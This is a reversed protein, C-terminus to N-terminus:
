WGGSALWEDLDDLRDSGWFPEGDVIFTPAGFVGANLSAQVSERLLAAPEPGRLAALLGEPDIGDPLTVHQVLTEPDSLLLGKGWWAQYIARGMEAQLEPRRQKVWCFARAATLSSTVPGPIARGLRVEYKRARRLVDRRLYDGKLPTEMLPKLGMVKVVSVGLLMPSWDVQRGHRAALEEIRLSAFYAYPSIFDFYFYVPSTM